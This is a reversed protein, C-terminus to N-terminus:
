FEYGLAGLVVCDFCISLGAWDYLEVDDCHCHQCEGTGVLKPQDNDEAEQHFFWDEWDEVTYTAALMKTVARRLDEIADQRPQQEGGLHFEVLHHWYIVMAELVPHFMLAVPDRAENCMGALVGPDNLKKRGDGRDVHWYTYFAEGADTELCQHALELLMNHAKDEM